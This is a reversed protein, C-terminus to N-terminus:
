SRECLEISRLEQRTVEPVFGHLFGCTGAGWTEKGRGSGSGHGSRDAGRGKRDTPTENLCCEMVVALRERWKPEQHREDHRDQGGGCVEPIQCVPDSLLTTD